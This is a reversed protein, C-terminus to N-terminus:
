AGSLVELEYCTQVSAVAPSCAVEHLRGRNADIRHAFFAPVADDVVYLLNDSGIPLQITVALTQEDENWEGEYQTTEGPQHYNLILEFGQPRGLPGFQSPRTYTLRVTAFRIDGDSRPSPVAPRDTGAGCGGLPLVALLVALTALHSRV